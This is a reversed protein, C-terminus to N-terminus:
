RTIDNNHNLLWEKVRIDNYHFWQTTIAYLFDNREFEFRWTWRNIGQEDKIADSKEADSINKPCKIFLVKGINFIDKSKEECLQELEEEPITMAVQSIKEQIERNSFLRDGKDKNKNPNKYSKIYCSNEKENEKEDEKEDESNLGYADLFMDLLELTRRQISQEDFKEYKLLSKNLNIKSTDALIVKKESFNKNTLHQSDFTITINGLTHFYKQHNLESIGEWGQLPLSKPMIHEIQCDKLDHEFSLPEKRQLNEVLVLFKLVQREKAKNDIYVDNIRHKLYKVKPQRDGSEISTVFSEFATAYDYYYETNKELKKLITPIFRTIQKISLGAIFRCVDYIVVKKLAENLKIKEEVILTGNEVRSSKEVIDMLLTAYTFFSSRLYGLHNKDIDSHSGIRLTQYITAWKIIDEIQKKCQEFENIDGVMKKFTYYIVKPEKNVKKYIKIAIYERFFDELDKEVKENKDNSFLSEFGKTYREILIEEQSHSCQYNKFTFLFNKILDSGSLPKGLSNISEFVSNEDQDDDLFITVIIVKKLINVFSIFDDPNMSKLKSYLYQYNKCYNTNRDSPSITDIAGTLLKELTNQHEMNNLKLKIEGDEDSFLYKGIYKAERKSDDTKIKHLYIDRIACLILITTTIRQQGDIVVREKRLGRTQNKVIINGIYYDSKKNEKYEEGFEIIDSILKEVQNQAQWTYTRQYIPIHFQMLDGMILDIINTHKAEIAM